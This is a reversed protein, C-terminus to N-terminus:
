RASCGGNCPAPACSNCPNETCVKKYYTCPIYRVHQEKVYKPRYKCEQVTYYEPVQRCHQTCYKETKYKCHKTEYYQPVYRCMQKQVTYPEQECRQTCYYQPVYRVMPCWCTCPGCGKYEACPNVNGCPDAPADGQQYSEVKKMYNVPIYRVHQDQCVKKRYKTECVTYYQPVMRCHTQTYYEPVSRCHEKTYTETRYRCQQKCVTYAEQECRTTCYYQPTYRVFPCWCICPGNGRYEQSPDINCNDGCSTNSNSYGSAAAPTRCAGNACQAFSSSVAAFSLMLALIALSSKKM